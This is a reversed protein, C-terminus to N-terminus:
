IIEVSYSPYFNVSIRKLFIFYMIFVIFVTFDVTGPIM